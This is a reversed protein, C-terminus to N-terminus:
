HGGHPWAVARYGQCQSLADCITCIQIRVPLTTGDDRLLSTDLRTIGRERKSSHFADTLRQHDTEPLLETLARGALDTPARGLLPQVQSSVYGIAQEDDLEFGIGGGLQIFDRTRQESDSLARSMVEKEVRKNELARRDRDRLRNMRVMRRIGLHHYRVLQWALLTLAISLAVGGFLLGNLLIPAGGEGLSNISRSRVLWQRDGLDITTERSPGGDEADQSSYLPEPEHQQLDLVSIHLRPKKGLELNEAILTQPDFLSVLYQSTESDGGGSLVLGQLRIGDVTFHPTAVPGDEMSRGRLSDWFPEEIVKQALSQPADSSLRTSAVRLKGEEETEVRLLGQWGAMSGLIDVASSDPNEAVLGLLHEHERLRDNLRQSQLAHLPSTAQQTNAILAQRTEMWLLATLLLGAVLVAVPLLRYWAPQDAESATESDM